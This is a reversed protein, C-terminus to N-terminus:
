DLLLLQAIVVADVLALQAAQHHIRAVRVARGTGDQQLHQLGAQIVHNEAGPQSGRQDGCALQDIMAM